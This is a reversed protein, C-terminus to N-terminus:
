RRTELEDGPPPQVACMSDAFVNLVGALAALVCTSAALMRAQRQREVQSVATIPGPTHQRM